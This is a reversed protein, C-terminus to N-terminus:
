EYLKTGQRVNGQCNSAVSGNMRYFTLLIPPECDPFQEAFPRVTTTSGFAEMLSEMVRREKVTLRDVM